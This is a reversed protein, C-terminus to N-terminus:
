IKLTQKTKPSYKRHVSEQIKKNLLDSTVVLIGMELGKESLILQNPCRQSHYLHYVTINDIFFM